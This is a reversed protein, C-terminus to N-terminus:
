PEVIVRAGHDLIVRFRDTLRRGILPEDGLITVVHGQRACTDDLAEHLKTLEAQRGVLPADFRDAKAAPGRQRTRSVTQAAAPMKSTTPPATLIDQYLRRTAAEPEVGLERQLLEVCTQYQRLAAARRGHAVFLQMLARHVAEQLLDMALLRSATEM